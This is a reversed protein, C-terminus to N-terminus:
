AARMATIPELRRLRRYPIIGALLIFLAMAGPGASISLLSVRPSLTGPLGWQAFIAEAGPMEMGYHGVIMTIISGAAIGIMLGLLALLALELWIMVGLKAPRMGIALLVGFERTRELVSMLLTNLIIFVVVIVLSAYWLLSTSLDLSIAANLGPQLAKWAYVEPEAQGRGIKRVAARLVPLADTVRALTPGALVIMNVASGMAFTTQFRQLPIQSFQRDIDPTGTAFIGVVHLVDTAISGDWAEGLLTVKGGVGVGLNRALTDGLVIAADDNARLYRGQKITRDLTSVRPERRPDVGVVAAGVSKKDDTLIAFSMARPAAAGIGNVAEATVLLESPDKITKKLSPKDKYGRPQIQAFGDMIRLVNEKMTAYTSLQFSLLFVMVVAAFAISSVNLITRRPQRWLNRWALGALM